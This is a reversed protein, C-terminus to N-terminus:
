NLEDHVWDASAAYVDGSIWRRVSLCGSRFLIVSASNTVSAEGIIEGDNVARIAHARHAALRLARGVAEDLNAGIARGLTSHRSSVAEVKFLVENTSLEARWASLIVPMDFRLHLVAHYFASDRDSSRDPDEMRQWVLGCSPSALVSEVARIVANNETLAVRVDSFEEDLTAEVTRSFVIERAQTVDEAVGVTVVGHSARASALGFPLQPLDRPHPEEVLGLESDWLHAVSVLLDEDVGDGIPGGEAMTTIGTFATSIEVFELSSLKHVAVQLNPDNLYFRLGDERGTVSELMGLWLQGVAIADHAPDDWRSESPHHASLRRLACEWLSGIEGPKPGIPGIIRRDGITQAIVKFTGGSHQRGFEVANSSAGTAMRDVKFGSRTVLDVLQDVLRQESGSVQFSSARLIALSAIPWDAAGFVFDRVDSSIEELWVPEAEFGDAVAYFFRKEILEGLLKKIIIKLQDDAISALLDDATVGTVLPTVIAEWIRQSAGGRLVVASDGHRIVTANGLEQTKVAPRLRIRTNMALPMRREKM